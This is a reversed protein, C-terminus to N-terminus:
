HFRIVRDVIEGVSDTFTLGSEFDFQILDGSKKGIQTEIDVLDLSDLNFSDLTTDESLPVNPGVKERIAATVFEMAM